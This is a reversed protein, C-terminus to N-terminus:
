KLPGLTSCPLLLQNSEAFVDERHLNFAFNSDQGFVSCPESLPVPIDSFGVDKASFVKGQVAREAWIQRRQRGKGRCNSNHKTVIGRSLM